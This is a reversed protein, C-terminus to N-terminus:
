FNYNSKNNVKLVDFSIAAWNLSINSVNLWVNVTKPKSFLNCLLYVYYYMKEKSVFSLPLLVSVSNSTTENNEYIISIGIM